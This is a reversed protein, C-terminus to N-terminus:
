EEGFAAVASFGTGEGIEVRLTRPAGGLANLADLLREGVYQALLETTTNAVPLLLCDDQPFVWRRDAFTAEIQGARCSVRIAPHQTPLLVRHDLDALITKLADRVALFDVVYQNENLPGQLEAAVHYTHGHLRECNDGELTIFHAACFVLDDNAIRIHFHPM